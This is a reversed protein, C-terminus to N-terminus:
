FNARNIQVVEREENHKQCHVLDFLDADGGVECGCDLVVWARKWWKRPETM